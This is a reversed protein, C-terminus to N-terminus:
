ILISVVCDANWPQDLTTWVQQWSPFYIFLHGANGEDVTQENMDRQCTQNQGRRNDCTAAGRWFLVCSNLICMGIHLHPQSDLLKTEDHGLRWVVEWQDTM